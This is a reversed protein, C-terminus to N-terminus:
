EGKESASYKAIFVDHEISWAFNNKDAWAALYSLSPYDKLTGFVRIDDIFITIKNFSSQYKTILELEKSIPTDFDGQYTAGSSFHGDLWFNVQGDLKKLVSELKTESSGHIVHIKQNHAFRKKALEYFNDAPELTFVEANFYNSLFSSTDGLYTGTEVWPARKIGHRMFIKKKVFFPSPSAFGSKVWLIPEYLHFRIM